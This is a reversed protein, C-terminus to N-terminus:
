MACSSQAVTRRLASSDGISRMSRVTPGVCRAARYPERGGAPSRVRSPQRASPPSSATTASGQDTAPPAAPASSSEVAAIRPERSPAWPMTRRSPQASYAGSTAM